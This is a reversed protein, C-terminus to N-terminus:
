STLDHLLAILHIHQEGEFALLEVMIVGIALGKDVKCEVEMKGAVVDGSVFTQEGLRVTARVKAHQSTANM